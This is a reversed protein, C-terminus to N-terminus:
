KPYRVCFPHGSPSAYVRSGGRDPAVHDDTPRLRRGGADLVTKDAAVADDTTLDFHIQQSAGDPWKPTVHQPAHQIVIMPFGDAQLFHHTETRAISGGLLSHWFSSESELDGADVVLSTLCFNMTNSITM